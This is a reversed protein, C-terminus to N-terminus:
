IEIYRLNKIVGSGLKPLKGEANFKKALEEDSLSPNELIM